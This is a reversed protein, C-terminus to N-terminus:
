ARPRQRGGNIGGEVLDDVEIFPRAEEFAHSSLAPDARSRAFESSKTFALHGVERGRAVSGLRCSRRADLRRTLRGRCATTGFAAGSRVPARRAPLLWCRPGVGISRRM